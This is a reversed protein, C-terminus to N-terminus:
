GRGFGGIACVAAAAALIAVRGLGEGEEKALLIGVSGKLKWGPARRRGAIGLSGRAAEVEVAVVATSGGETRGLNPGASGLFPASM